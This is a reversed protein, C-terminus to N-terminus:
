IIDSKNTTSITQVYFSFLSLREVTGTRKFVCNDIFCSNKISNCKFLFHLGSANEDFWCNVRIITSSAFIYCMKNFDLNNISFYQMKTLFFVFDISKVM